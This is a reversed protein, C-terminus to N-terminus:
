SRRRKSQKAKARDARLKAMRERAAIKRARARHDTGPCYETVPAGRRQGASDPKPPRVAFFFRGCEEFKCRCLTGRFPKELLLLLANAIVPQPETQWAEFEEWRYRHEGGPVFVRLFLLGEARRRWLATLSASVKGKVISDLAERLEIQGAAQIGKLLPKEGYQAIVSEHLDVGMQLRARAAYSGDNAIKVLAQVVETNTLAPRDRLMRLQAVSIPPLLNPQEADNM